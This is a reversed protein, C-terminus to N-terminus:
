SRPPSRSSSHIQAQGTPPVPCSVAGGGSAERPRSQRVRPPPRLEDFVPADVLDGEGKRPGARDEHYLWVRYPRIGQKKAARDIADHAKRAARAIAHNPLDPLYEDAM